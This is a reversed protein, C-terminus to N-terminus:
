RPLLNRRRSVAGSEIIPTSTNTYRRYSASDRWIGLNVVYPAECHLCVMDRELGPTWPNEKQCSPCFSSFAPSSELARHLAKEPPLDLDRIEMEVDFRNLKSSRELYRQRALQYFSHVGNMTGFRRDKRDCYIHLLLLVATAADQALTIGDIQCLQTFYTSFEVPGYSRFHLMHHFSQALLHSSRVLRRVEEREGEIIVVTSPDNILGAMARELRSGDNGFGTAERASLFLTRGKAQEFPNNESNPTPLQAGLDVHLLGVTKTIGFNHFAEALIEAAAHKGLGEGGTFALHFNQNPMPMGGLRRHHAAHAQRLIRELQARVTEESITQNLRRIFYEIERDQGGSSATKDESELQTTSTIILDESSQLLLPPHGVFLSEKITGRCQVGNLAAARLSRAQLGDATLHSSQLDVAVDDSSFDSRVVELRSQNATLAVAPSQRVTNYLFTVTGGTTSTQACRPSSQREITCSRVVLHSSALGTSIIAAIEQHSFHCCLLHAMSCDTLYLGVGNNEFRVAETYISSNAAFIAAGWESGERLACHDIRSHYIAATSGERLVIGSHCGSMRTGHLELFSGQNVSIGVEADDLRCNRLYLSAKGGIRIGGKIRCNELLVVGQEVFLVDNDRTGRLELDSLSVFDASIHLPSNLVTGPNSGQLFLQKEIRSIPFEGAPIEIKSGPSAKRLASLLEKPDLFRAGPKPSLKRSAGTPGFNKLVERLSPPRLLSSTIASM